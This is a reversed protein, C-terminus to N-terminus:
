RSTGCGWLGGNAPWCRWLACFALAEPFRNRLAIVDHQIEWNVFWHPAAPHDDRWGLAAGRLSRSETGGWPVTPDFQWLLSGPAMAPPKPCEVMDKSRNEVTGISVELGGGSLGRSFNQVSGKGALWKAAGTALTYGNPLEEQALHVFLSRVRDM